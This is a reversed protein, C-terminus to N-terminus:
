LDRREKKAKIRRISRTIITKGNLKAEKEGVYNVNVNRTLKENNSRYRIISSFTSLTM